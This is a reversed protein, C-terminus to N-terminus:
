PLMFFVHLEFLIFKANYKTNLNCLLVVFPIVVVQAGQKTSSEIWMEICDKVKEFEWEHIKPKNNNQYVILEIIITTNLASM